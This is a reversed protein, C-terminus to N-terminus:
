NLHWRLAAAKNIIFWSCTVRRAHQVNLMATPKKKSVFSNFFATLQIIQFNYINNNYKHVCQDNPSVNDEGQLTCIRTTVSLARSRSTHFFLYNLDPGRILLRTWGKLQESSPFSVWPRETSELQISETREKKREAKIQPISEEM